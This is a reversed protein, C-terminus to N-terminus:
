FASQDFKDVDFQTFGTATLATKASRTIVNSDRNGGEDRARIIFSYDTYVTLGTVLYMTIGMDTTILANSTDPVCGAGSCYYIDYVIREPLTRDDKGAFWTLYISTNNAPFASVLGYFEPANRDPRAATEQNTIGVDLVNGCSFLLAAMLLIFYIRSM